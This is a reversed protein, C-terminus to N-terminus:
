NNLMQWAREADRRAIVQDQSLTEGSSFQFPSGSTSIFMTGHSPFPSTQVWQLAGQERRRDMATMVYGRSLKGRKQPSGGLM